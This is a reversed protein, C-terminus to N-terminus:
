AAFSLDGWLMSLTSFSLAFERMRSRFQIHFFHIIAECVIGIADDTQWWLSPEFVSRIVAAIVQILWHELLGLRIMPSDVHFDVDASINFPNRPSSM